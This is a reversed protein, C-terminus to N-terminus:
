SLAISLLEQVDLVVPVITLRVARLVVGVACATDDGSQNAVVTSADVAAIAVCITPLPRWGHFFNYAAAM